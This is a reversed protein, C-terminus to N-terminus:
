NPEHPVHIDKLLTKVETMVLSVQNCAITNREICTQQNEMTTKLQGTLATHEKLSADVRTAAWKMVLAAGGVIVLILFIMVWRDSKEAMTEAAYRAGSIVDSQSLFVLMPKFIVM